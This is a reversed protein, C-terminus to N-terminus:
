GEAAQDKINLVKPTLFILLENRTDARAKSKFLWGLVPIHRLWPVGIETTTNDASYIGGIVATQGDSVLVKTKATRSNIPRAGSEPDEIAGPFERTVEVDMIVSGEATIQPTVALNLSFDTRVPNRTTNGQQDRLTQVTIVQGKQSINSKEKNMTVVRPSSLIKVMSDQEALNLAATIDGLLDFRGIRLTMALPSTQQGTAKPALNTIGLSSQLTVDSGNVGKGSGIVYPSGSLAWNLGLSQTFSDQAEVVKGEIMVQAPPIDLEKVLRSVRELIDETDTIILASTRADTVVHGRGTTLFPPIQKALDDVAAYSIPIVKVRLPALTRQSDLIKKAADNEEQLATLTSIRIVSGQRVYGLKKAKMITVLAQDWPINRLKMTIKGQVDETMILNLGSEASVFNLVDRIDQDNVEVSIQNGYFRNSGTLFEDLNRAGLAKEDANAAKHDVSDNGTEEKAKAEEAKALTGSDVGPTGPIIVISNGEQQVVPESGQDKLQIVIRATTAGPNQYANIAAFAAGFEKLIYPRKLREPLTAGTLEVVYQNTDTKNRVQYSVPQSTEVVVAGGSQNALYKINTVEALAATEMPAPEVPAAPEPTPEALQEPAPEEAPAPEAKEALEDEQDLEGELDEEGLEENEAIEEGLDDSPPAEEAPAEEGGGSDAQESEASEGSDGSDATDGGEDLGDELSIVEDEGGGGSSDPTTCSTQGFLLVIALVIALKRMM